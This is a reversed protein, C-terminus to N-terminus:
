PADEGIRGWESLLAALDEANSASDGTVDGDPAGRAAIPIALDVGTSGGAAISLAIHSM